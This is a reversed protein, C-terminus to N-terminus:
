NLVYRLKLSLTAAVEPATTVTAVLDYDKCPDASLGLAVWLPEEMDDINFANGHTIDTNAAATATTVAAKFYDADVVASGNKTTQYIGVDVAGATGSDDCSFLLQSIRANSPIQAFLYTSGADDTAAMEVTGVAEVINGKQTYDYNQVAPIADRNSINTAKKIATSM